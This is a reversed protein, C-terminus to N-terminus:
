ARGFYMANSSIRAIRFEPTSRDAEDEDEYETRTQIGGIPFNLNEADEM